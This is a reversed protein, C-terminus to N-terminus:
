VLSILLYLCLFLCHKFILQIRCSCSHKKNFDNIWVSTPVKSLKLSWLLICYRDKGTRVLDTKIICSVTYHTIRVPSSFTMIGSSFPCSWTFYHCSVLACFSILATTNGSTPKRQHVSLLSFIKKNSVTRQFFCKLVDSITSINVRVIKVYVNFDSFLGRFLWFISIACKSDDM